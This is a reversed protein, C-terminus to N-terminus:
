DSAVTAPRALPGVRRSWLVIALLLVILTFGVVSLAIMGGQAFLLGSGLSGAGAGLAVAMEGAGQARGREITRLQDALLSSGSVFCFNWGLGLLFLALALMPVAVSLPALICTAILIFAGVVIMIVRGLRDVLWGTLWSLGFMGLTHAMIVFSIADAGHDSREMYLSTIVMFMAMVMQGVVMASVALIAARSSFIERLSRPRRGINQSQLPLEAAAAESDDLAGMQRGILLPDPRLMLLVILGALFLLVASVFYPGAYLDLDLSLALDTAPVVLLPGGIAGITGAFVILGIVKARRSSRFIEAAVYRGQEAAGRSLGLLLAGTLLLAFSGVVVAYGSLLAGLIGFAYGLSLGRRRGARDLLWGIPYAVAARGLLTVTAPLGAASDQGSLDAAVIATLTFSAIVAASFLGQTLFLAGVIRRRTGPSIPVTM